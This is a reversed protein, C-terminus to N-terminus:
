LKVVAEAEKFFRMRRILLDDIMAESFTLM